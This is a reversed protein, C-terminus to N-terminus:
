IDKETGYTTHYIEFCHEYNDCSHCLKEKNEMHIYNKCFYTFDNKCIIYEQLIDKLDNMNRDM